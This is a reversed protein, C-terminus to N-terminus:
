DEKCYVRNLRHTLERFEHPSPEESQLIEDVKTCQQPTMEARVSEDAFAEKVKRSIVVRHTM